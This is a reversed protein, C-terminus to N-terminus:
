LTPKALEVMMDIIHRPTRFQGNDGSTAMKSLLYEYCDGMMDTKNFSLDPDSLVEIMKGLIYPNSISFEAKEM